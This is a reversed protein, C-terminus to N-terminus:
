RGTEAAQQLAGRNRRIEAVLANLKGVAIQNQEQSQKLAAVESTLGAIKSEYKAKMAAIEAKQSQNQRHERQLENLLMPTLLHYYITFPKGAKDYQVLNSHVKATPQAM